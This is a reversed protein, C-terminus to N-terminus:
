ERRRSSILKSDEGTFRSQPTGIPDFERPTVRDMGYDSAENGAAGRPGVGPATGMRLPGAVSRELRQTGVTAQFTADPQRKVPPWEGQRGQHQAM